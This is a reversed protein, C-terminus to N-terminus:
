TGTGTGYAQGPRETVNFERGNSFEYAVPRVSGKSWDRDARQVILKWTQTTV